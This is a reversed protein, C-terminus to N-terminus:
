AAFNASAFDWNVLNWFAEVYKPRANRYDIYYAHEWVDCTLLAVDDGRLPTDANSTQAIAISGDPKKVLWAWGSGFLKVAKDSFEAKFADFGGYRSNIADAVKGGFAGGIRRCICVVDKAARATAKAVLHQVEDPHQTSSYVTLTHDEGPVAMAVQGELYFQDQGGLDLRRQVRHPADALAPQFSAIRSVSVPWTVTSLM